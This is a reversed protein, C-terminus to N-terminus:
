KFGEEVREFASLKAGFRGNIENFRFKMSSLLTDKGSIHHNQNKSASPTTIATTKPTNGIHCIPFLRDSKSDSAFTDPRCPRPAGDNFQLLQM